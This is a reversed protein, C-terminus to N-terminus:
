ATGSQLKGSVPIESTTMVARERKLCNQSKSLEKQTYRFGKGRHSRGTSRSGPAM